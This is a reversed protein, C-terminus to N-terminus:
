LFLQKKVSTININDANKAIQSRRTEMYKNVWYPDRQLPNPLCCALSTADAMTLDSAHIHYYKKSAAEVGYIGSGLEAVNLYVEMIRRKGWIKEILVTYYAEIGKRFWTHSCFTFCNKATQQSITSCGRIPSGDFMHEQKMRAIEDFDFGNHLLFKQDESAIVAKIMEDSIDELPTWKYKIIIADNGINQLGRVLMLPTFTVPVWKLITVLLISAVVFGAPIYALLITLIRKIKM